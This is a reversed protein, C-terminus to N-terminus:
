GAEQDGALLSVIYSGLLRPEFPKLQFAIKLFDRAIDNSGFEALSKYREYFFGHVSRAHYFGYLRIKKELGPYKQLLGGLGAVATRYARENAPAKPFSFLTMAQHLFFMLNSYYYRELLGLRTGRDPRDRQQFEATVEPLHHFKYGQKLLRIWMEWDNATVVLPEYFRGLKEFIERSVLVLMSSIPEYRLCTKLDVVPESRIESRLLKENRDFYNIRVDSYAVGPESAQELRGLLGALHNPYIVDDDDYFAIFEGRAMELGRNLGAAPGGHAFRFYRLGPLGSEKCVQEVLEPGGDNVVITEFDKFEQAKLCNLANRLFELRNFTRVIVSIKPRPADPSIGDHNISRFTLDYNRKLDLAKELYFLNIKALAYDPSKQHALRFLELGREFDGLLYSCVGADNLIEATPGCEAPGQLLELAERFKEARILSKATAHEVKIGARGLEPRGEQKM